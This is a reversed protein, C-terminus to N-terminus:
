LALKFYENTVMINGGNDVEIVRVSKLMIAGYQGFVYLVTLAVLIEKLFLASKVSLPTVMTVM